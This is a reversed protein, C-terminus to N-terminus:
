ACAPWGKSCEETCGCRNCAPASAQQALKPSSETCSQTSALFALQANPGGALLDSDLTAGAGTSDACLKAVYADLKAQDPALRAISATHVSADPVFEIGNWAPCTVGVDQLNWRLGTYVSLPQITTGTQTACPPPASSQRCVARLPPPPPPPPSAAAPQPSMAPM